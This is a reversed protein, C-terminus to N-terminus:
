KIGMNLKYARTYAKLIQEPAKDSIIRMYEKIAFDEIKSANSNEDVPNTKRFEAYINNIMKKREPKGIEKTPADNLDRVYDFFINALFVRTIVAFVDSIENVKQEREIDGVGLGNLDIYKKALKRVFEQKHNTKESKKGKTNDANDLVSFFADSIAAAGASELKIAYETAKADYEENDKAALAIEQIQRIVTMQLSKPVTHVFGSHMFDNKVGDKIANERQLKAEQEAKEKRKQGDIEQQKLDAKLLEYEKQEKEEKLMLYIEQREKSVQRKFDKFTGKDIVDEVIDFADSCKQAFDEKLEPNEAWFRKMLSGQTERQPTEPKQEQSYKLKVFDPKLLDNGASHKLLFESLTRRLDLSNNWVYYMAYQTKEYRASNKKPLNVTSTDSVDLIDKVNQEFNARRVAKYISGYKDIYEQRSVCLSHRFGNSNADGVLGLKKYVSLPILENSTKGGRTSKIDEIDKPTLIDTNLDNPFDKIIEEKTKAEFYIKKALYVSFDNDKTKPFMYGLVLGDFARASQNLATLFSGESDKQTLASQINKFEVPFEKKLDEVTHCDEMKAYVSKYNAYVDTINKREEPTMKGAVQEYTYPMGKGNAYSNYLTDLNDNNAGFKILYSYNPMLNLNTVANNEANAYGKAVSKKQIFNNANFMLSSTSLIKM